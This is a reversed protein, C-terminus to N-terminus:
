FLHPPLAELVAERSASAAASPIALAAEHVGIRELAAIQRAIESPTGAFAFHPVLADPNLPASHARADGHQAYDYRSLVAEATRRTM